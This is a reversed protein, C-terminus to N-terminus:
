LHFPTGKKKRRDWDQQNSSVHWPQLELWCTPGHPCHLPSRSSAQSKSAGWNHNVYKRDKRRSLSLRTTLWQTHMYGFRLSVTIRHVLFSHTSRTRTRPVWHRRVALVNGQLASMEGLCYAFRMDTLRESRLPTLAAFPWIQKIPNHPRPKRDWRSPVITTENPSLMKRELVM